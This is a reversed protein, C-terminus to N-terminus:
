LTIKRCCFVFKYRKIFLSLTNLQKEKFVRWNITDYGKKHFYNEYFEFERSDKLKM